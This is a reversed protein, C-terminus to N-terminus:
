KSCEIEWEVGYKDRFMAFYSGSGSADFPMEVEGGVSLSNFIADAEDKSDAAVYIKSRNERENTKGMFSPVDNGILMAQTGIPLEIRMLKEAESPDVPFHESALEKFRIVKGFEGGFASKYFTFAEEANGNFNIHPHITAM